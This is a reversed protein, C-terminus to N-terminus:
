LLAQFPTKGLGLHRVTNEVDVISDDLIRGLVLALGGLTMINLTHGSFYLGMFAALISMPISLAVIWTSRLSGLFLLVVLSALLAGAAAEWRLNTLADRVYQSQDFAVELHVDDPVAGRGYLEPLFAQVNDVVRIASAGAQRLLPMYVARRGDVRVTNTRWRAGDEVEAVDKLRVIKRGDNYLPINEFDKPDQVLANSRVYYNQKDIRIEGSPI